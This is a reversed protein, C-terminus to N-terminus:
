GFNVVLRVRAGGRDTCNFRTVVDGAILGFRYSPGVPTIGDIRAGVNDRTADSRPDVIVGIGGRNDNITYVGFPGERTEVRVRPRTSPRRPTEQTTAATPLMLCAALAALTWNRMM